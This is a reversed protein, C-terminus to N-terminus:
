SRRLSPTLAALEQTGVAYAVALAANLSLVVTEGGDEILTWFVDGMMPGMASAHLTDVGVAFVAISAAALVFVAGIKRQAPDPPPWSRWLMVALTGGIAAFAIPQGFDRSALTLAGDPAVLQGTLAGAREHIRLVNDFLFWLHVGALALFLQAQDRRACILLAVATAASTAYEVREAFGGDQSLSFRTDFLLLPTPLHGITRAYAVHLLMMVTDVCLLLPLFGILAARNFGLGRNVGM